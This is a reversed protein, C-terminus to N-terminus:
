VEKKGTVYEYILSKKYSELESLLSTKKTILEDIESCKKDLFSVIEKQTNLPPIVIPMNSYASASINEITSKKVSYVRFGDMIQCRMQYLLFKKLMKDPNAEIKALYGAYCAPEHLGEFLLTKGVTGGATAALIVGKPLIYKKGKIQPIYAANDEIVNGNKDFDSIRIYRISHPTKDQAEEGAGTVIPTSVIHKMKGCKWDTPINGIYNIGSYKM